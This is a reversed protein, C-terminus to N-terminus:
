RENKKHHKTSIVLTGALLDHWARREKNILIYFIGLGFFIASVAYGLLRTLYQVPTPKGMTKHDIIKMNLLMKGPTAQYKNWFFLVFIGLLLMQIFQEVYWKTNGLNQFLEEKPVPTKKEYALALKQRYEISPPPSDYLAGYLINCIPIVIVSALMLDLVAAFMRSIFGPYRPDTQKKKRRFLFM